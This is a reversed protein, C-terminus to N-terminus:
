VCSSRRASRRRVSSSAEPITAPTGGEGDGYLSSLLNASSKPPKTAKEDTSDSSDDCSVTAVTEDSEPHTTGRQGRKSTKDASIPGSGAMSARRGSRARRPAGFSRDEGQQIQPPQSPAERVGISSRRATRRSRPAGAPEEDGYGLRQHNGQDFSDDDSRCSSDVPLSQISHNSAGLSGLRGTRKKEQGMDGHSSRSLGDRRSRPKLKDDAPAALSTTYQKPENDGTDFPGRMANDGDFDDDSDFTDLSNRSNLNKMSKPAKPFDEAPRMRANLNKMSKPARPFDEAPRMRANLNKMSKPAQPSDEVAKVRANLNKMSKPAQPFDEAPRMRASINKMSKPAQPFDESAKVRANLNKMSKPAQPVDEAPRMRANLNKMSKPARPFDESAKMAVPTGISTRRGQRRRSPPAAAASAIPDDGDGMQQRMQGQEQVSSSFSTARTPLARVTRNTDSSSAKLTLSITAKAKLASPNFYLLEKYKHHVFTERLTKDSTIKPRPTDWSLKAEFISNVRKKGGHEM